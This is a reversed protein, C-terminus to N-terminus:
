CELEIIRAETEVEYEQMIIEDIREELYEASNENKRMLDLSVDGDIVKIMSRQLEELQQVRCSHDEILSRVFRIEKTGSKKSM